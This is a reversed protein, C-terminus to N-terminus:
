NTEQQINWTLDSEKSYGLAKSSDPKNDVFLSM